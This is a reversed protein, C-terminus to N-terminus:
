AVARNARDIRSARQLRDRAGQIDKRDVADVAESFATLVETAEEAKLEVAPKAATPRASVGLSAIVGEALQKVLRKYDAPPGDAQQNAIIAGSGVDLVKITVALQGLIDFVDGALLYNAALLNGIRSDAPLAAAGSLAFAQEELITNRRARDVVTIGRVASLEVALFEAFGKGLFKFSPNDSQVGFDLVAIRLEQSFAPAVAALLLVLSAMAARLPRCM